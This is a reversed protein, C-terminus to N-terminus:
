ERMDCLDWNDATETTGEKEFERNEPDATEVTEEIKETGEAGETKETGETEGAGETGEEESNAEGATEKTGEEGPKAKPWPWWGGLPMDDYIFNWCYDDLHKSFHYVLRGDTDRARGHIVNDPHLHSLRFSGFSTEEPSWVTLSATWNPGESSRLSYHRCRLALPNGPFCDIPAWWPLQGRPEYTMFGVEKIVNNEDWHFGDRMLRALDETSLWMIAVWAPWQAPSPSVCGSPYIMLLLHGPRAKPTPTTTFDPQTRPHKLPLPGTGQASPSFSAWDVSRAYLPGVNDNHIADPNEGNAFIGDLQISNPGDPNEPIRHYSFISGFLQSFMRFCM